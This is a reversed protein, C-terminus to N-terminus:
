IRAGIARSNGGFLSVTRYGGQGAWDQIRMACDKQFIRAPADSTLFPQFQKGKKAKFILRNRVYAGSSSPFQYTDASGGDYAISITVPASSIYALVLDYASM